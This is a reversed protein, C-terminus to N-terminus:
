SDASEPTPVSPLGYAPDRPKIQWAVMPEKDLSDLPWTAINRCPANAQQKGSERCPMEGVIQQAFRRYDRALTSHDHSLIAPVGHNMAHTALPQDASIAETVPFQLYEEIDQLNVGNVLTSQNVILRLRDQRYGREQLQAMMQRASHLNAVDPLISLVMRDAVDLWAWGTEDLPIGMDVLVWTFSRRLVDVVQHIQTRPIPATLSGPPPAQLAHVGSAHRALMGRVLEEDMRSLRSLLDAITHGDRLNLAVDVAPAAHNADVLVTPQSTQQNLSLATNTALTTCGTGGQAAFFVIVRGVPRAPEAMRAQAPAQAQVGHLSNVLQEQDLPKPLFGQAGALMVQGIQPLTDPDVLVLIAAGRARPALKRVFADLSIGPLEDDVLVLHPTLDEIRGLALDPHAVWHLQHNPLRARLVRAVEDRLSEQVTVLLIRAAEYVSIGM